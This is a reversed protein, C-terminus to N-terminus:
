IRQTAPGTLAALTSEATSLEDLPVAYLRCVAADLRAQLLTAAAPRLDGAALPRALDALAALAPSAPPPLPLRALYPGNFRLYGGSLHVPWYLFHYYWALLRSNLLALLTYAPYAVSSENVYYIRGLAQGGASYAAQLRRAVGPVLVKPGAFAARQAPTTATCSLYRSAAARRLRYPQIDQAQLLPLYAVQAAAPLDTYAAAALTARAYGARAVGCRVARPPLRGPQRAMRRALDFLEVTAAAPMITADLGCFAAQPLCTDPRGPGALTIQQDPGPSTNQAVLIVPYTAADPFLGSRSLDELRGLSTTEALIERVAQGYDAAMFKNPLIYGLRGGPRLLGLGREVFLVALDYQGRAARYRGRRAPKDAAPQARHAVYPPNGVVADFPPWWAPLDALADGLHIIPGPICAGSAAAGLYLSYCALDAAVPDSDVGYVGASAPGMWWAAPRRHPDSAALARALREVAALLFYGAGCAPDLIRLAQLAALPDPAAQAGAILPELAADLIAAVVPAPTYYIGEARRLSPDLLLEYLQGLDRGTWARCGATVTALMPAVAARTDPDVFVGGRAPRDQAAAAQEFLLALLAGLAHAGPLRAALQDRLQRLTALRRAWLPAAASGSAPTSIPTRPPWSAIAM